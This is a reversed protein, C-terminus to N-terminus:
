VIMSKAREVALAEELAAVIEAPNAEAKRFAVTVLAEKTQLPYSCTAPHSTVAKQIPTNAAKARVKRVTLQGKKAEEWLREQDQSPSKAIELLLSKSIKDSTRYDQIIDLPLDLLRLLESVSAQTKGIRRALAEQNLGFEEMLRRYGNAEEFPTLDKRHLNEIIQVELLKHEEITRVIAAIRPLSLEKAATFRREGAVLRYRNYDLITVIIPQVLGVSAISAKLDTLDGLDRRPQKPDPEIQELPLDTLTDRSPALPSFEAPLVHHATTKGLARDKFKDELRAM